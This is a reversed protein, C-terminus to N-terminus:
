MGRLPPRPPKAASKWVSKKKTTADKDSMFYLKRPKVKAIREIIRLVTDKRQFMFLCVPIDFQEM